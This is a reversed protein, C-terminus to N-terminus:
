KLVEADDLYVEVIDAENRGDREMNFFMSEGSESEYDTVWKLFEILEKKRFKNIDDLSVDVKLTIFKENNRM